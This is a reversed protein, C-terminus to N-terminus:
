DQMRVARSTLICCVLILPTAKLNHVPNTVLQCAFNAPLALPQGNVCQREQTISTGTYGEVNCTWTVSVMEGHNRGAGVPTDIAASAGTLTAAQNCQAQGCLFTTPNCAATVRCLLAQSLLASMHTYIAIYVYLHISGRATVDRSM